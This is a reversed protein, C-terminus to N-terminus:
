DNEDCISKEKKIEKKIENAKENKVSIEIPKERWFFLDQLGFTFFLDILYIITLLKIKM